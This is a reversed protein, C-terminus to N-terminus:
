SGPVPCDKPFEARPGMPRAPETVFVILEGDSGIATETIWGDPPSLRKDAYGANPGTSWTARWSLRFGHAQLAREADPPSLQLIGSCHLPGGPEFPDAKLAIGGGPPEVFSPQPVVALIAGDIRLRAPGARGQGVFAIDGSFPQGLATRLHPGRPFAVWDPAPGVNDYIRVEDVWWSTGDAMFYLHIRQELGAELWTVELTWYTRSGPDSRIQIQDTEAHLTAGNAELTVRDAGLMVVETSWLIRKDKAALLAADSEPSAQSIPDSDRSIYAGVGLSAGVVAAVLLAVAAILAITRSGGGADHRSAADQVRGRLRTSGGAVELRAVLALDARM